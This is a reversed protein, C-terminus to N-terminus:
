SQLSSRPDEYMTAGLALPLGRFIPNKDIQVEYKVDPGEIPEPYDAFNAPPQMKITDCPNVQLHTQSVVADIESTFCWWVVLLDHFDQFKYSLFPSSHSLSIMVNYTVDWPVHIIRGPQPAM